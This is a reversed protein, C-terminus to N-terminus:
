GPLNCVLSGFSGPAGGGGGEGVLFVSGKAGFAIGEGQVQNLGSVDFNLPSSFDGKIIRAAAYFAVGAHTRLGVWRGDQAVSAGTVWDTRDVRGGQLVGIKQLTSAEPRAKAGSPFRYLAVPGTDGKTVIFMDGGLVFFAEADQARDPFTGHFAEVPGTVPDTPLPEPMRYITIGKRVGRNDGIDAVFVCSSTGCTGVAVDEWDALTVGSVRVRGKLAGHDDLATLVPAVGSDSHSWFIGPTRRSAALGSAEPLDPLAVSAVGVHCDAGEGKAHIKSKKSDGSSTGVLTFALLFALPISLSLPTRSIM